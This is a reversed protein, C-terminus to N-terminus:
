LVMQYKEKVAIKGLCAYMNEGKLLCRNFIITSPMLFGVLCAKFWLKDKQLDPVGYPVCMYQLYSGKVPGTLKNTSPSLRDRICM